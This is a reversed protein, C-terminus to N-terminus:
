PWGFLQPESDDVETELTADRRFSRPSADEVFVTNEGALGNLDMKQDHGPRTYGRDQKFEIMYGLLVM